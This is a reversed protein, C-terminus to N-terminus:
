RYGMRVFYSQLQRDQKCMSSYRKLARYFGLRIFGKGDCTGCPCPLSRLRGAVEVEQVDMRSGGCAPCALPADDNAIRM